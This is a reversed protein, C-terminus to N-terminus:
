PRREATEQPDHGFSPGEVVIRAGPLGTAVVRDFLKDAEGVSAIPGLRVRYVDVGKVTVGQVQVAGLRDIRSKVKMAKDAMAFAGVQIFIQLATSPAVTVADPM